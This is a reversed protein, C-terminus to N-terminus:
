FVFRFSYDRKWFWRSKTKCRDDQGRDGSYGYSLELQEIGRNQSGRSETEKRKKKKEKKKTKGKKKPVEIQCEEAPSSGAAERELTFGRCCAKSTQFGRNIKITDDSNDTEPEVRGM